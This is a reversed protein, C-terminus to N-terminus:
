TASPNYGGAFGGTSSVHVVTNSGSVEFHRYSELNGLQDVGQSEGVLLDRRDLSDSNATTDFGIVTDRAPNGATGADGLDWRFVDAGLGGALLDDGQGGVLVDDGAGGSIDDNGAYGSLYEDAATGVLTDAGATGD